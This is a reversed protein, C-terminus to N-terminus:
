SEVNVWRVLIDFWKVFNNMSYSFYIIYCMQNAFFKVSRLLLLNTPKRLNYFLFHPPKPQLKLRGCDAKLPLPRITVSDQRPSLDSIRWRCGYYLSLSCFILLSCPSLNTSMALVSSLVQPCSIFRHTPQHFSISNAMLPVSWCCLLAFPQQINQLLVNDVEAGRRRTGEWKKLVAWASAECQKLIHESASIKM